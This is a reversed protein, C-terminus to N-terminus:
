IVPDFSETKAPMSFVFETREPTSSFIIQGDHARAIWMSISLGLGCGEIDNLKACSGRYFREFVRSQEAPPIGAGTNCVSVKALGDEHILKLSVEGGEHNYKVANDCLILLLQRLRHRDGMISVEPFADHLVRIGHPEALAQVNESAEQVLVDLRVEECNLAIIQADAKALLTLGNVIRTLREIEDLHSIFRERDVESRGPEDVIEGYDARLIALPTKLEHSAHLTFERISNFSDELRATMENFVTTLRDLEDGTGRLPIRENLNGAHIRRAAETVEHLPKLARMTLWWGGAALVMLPIASRLVVEGLQWWLPEPVEGFEAPDKAEMVLERYAVVVVFLMAFTLLVMFWWTLRTGLKM